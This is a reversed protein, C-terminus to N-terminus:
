NPDPTGHLREQLVTIHITTTSGPVTWRFTVGGAHGFARKGRKREMEEKKKNRRQAVKSNMASM